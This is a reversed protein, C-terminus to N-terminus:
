KGVDAKDYSVEFFIPPRDVGPIGVSSIKFGKETKEYQLQKHLFPDNCIAVDKQEFVVEGKENGITAARREWTIEDFPHVGPRTWRRPVHLGKATTKHHKAPTQLDVGQREGAARKATKVSEAM